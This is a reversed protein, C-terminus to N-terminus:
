GNKTGYKMLQILEWVRKVEKKLNNLDSSNDIIFHAYKVKEAIPMQSNIIRVADEESIDDREMLRKLQVEPEVYVVIMRDFRGHTGAEVAVAAQTIIVAKDDSGKIRGVEAKEYDRIAPQVIDELQKRLSPNAFVMSRLAKRNLTGDESLIGEGFLNLVGEYAKQGSQMVMRSIEDTDLCYCGLEAFFKAATSKGSAINGTLGLYM